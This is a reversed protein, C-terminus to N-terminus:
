PLVQLQILEPNHSRRANSTPFLPDAGGPASSASESKGCGRCHQYIAVYGAELFDSYEIIKERALEEDSKSAAADVYPNRMIITPFKGEAAPKVVITFLAVGESQIRHIQYIAM